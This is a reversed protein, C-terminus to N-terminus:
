DLMKGILDQSLFEGDESEKSVTDESPTISIQQVIGVSDKVDAMNKFVNNLAEKVPGYDHIREFRKSEDEQLHKKYEALSAENEKEAKKDEQGLGQALLKIKGIRIATTTIMLESKTDDDDIQRYADEVVQLLTDIESSGYIKFLEKAQKFFDVTQDEADIDYKAYCADLTFRTLGQIFKKASVDKEKLLKNFSLVDELSTNAAQFFKLYIETSVDGLSQKITDLTVVNNYNKAVTELLNICERPVRDGKKAIIKLADMSVELNEMKSIELLRNAIEDVSKKRVEIKLQVRSHITPIVQEPDTTCFIFVM